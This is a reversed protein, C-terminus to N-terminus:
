QRLRAKLLLPKVMKIRLSVFPKDITHLYHAKNETAPGRVNVSQGFISYLQGLM